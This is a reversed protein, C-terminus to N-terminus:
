KFRKGIKEITDMEEPSLLHQKEFLNVLTEGFMSGKLSDATSPSIIDYGHDCLWKIAEEKDVDSSYEMFANATIEVDGENKIKNHDRLWDIVDDIEYNTCESLFDAPHINMEDPAFDPM